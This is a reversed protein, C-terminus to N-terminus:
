RTWGAGTKRSARLHDFWHLTLVVAQQTGRVPRLMVFTRGDRAVSYNHDGFAAAAYDGTFLIRGGTLDRYIVGRAHAYDLASGVQQAIALAEEVGLQKERNLRDRLSEGRIFPLVYWLFGGWESSDILTVIHPHELKATLRIENLFRERGLIAALEPRLVKLTVERDHKVDRALYVTAMGGQGLERVIVYLDALAAAFPVALDTM